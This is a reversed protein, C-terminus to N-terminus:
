LVDVGSLAMSCTHHTLVCVFFVMVRDSCLCVHVSDLVGCFDGLLEQSILADTEM